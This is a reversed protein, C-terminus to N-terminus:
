LVNKAKFDTQSWHFGSLKRKLFPVPGRSWLMTNNKTYYM